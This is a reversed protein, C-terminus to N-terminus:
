GCLVYSARDKELKEKGAFVVVLRDWLESDLREPGGVAGSLFIKLAIKM